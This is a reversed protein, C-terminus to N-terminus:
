KAHMYASCYCEIEQGKKLKYDKGINSLNQCSLLDGKKDNSTFFTVEEGNRLKYAEKLQIVYEGEPIDIGVKYIGKKLVMYKKLSLEQEWQERKELRRKLYDEELENINIGYRKELLELIKFIGDGVYLRNAGFQYKMSTICKKNRLYVKKQTLKWNKEKWDKMTECFRIPYRYPIGNTKDNYCQNGMIYELQCILEAVNNDLEM